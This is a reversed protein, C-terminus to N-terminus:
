LKIINKGLKQAYNVTYITGGSSSRLYCILYNSNDVMFRNRKFMCGPTYEESVLVQEDASNLMKKYEIKQSQTFNIDQNKCPICAIIKINKQKRIDELVKFCVSDFGVAMGVLFTDVGKNIVELVSAKLLSKDFDFGLNRHGTVACTKSKDVKIM